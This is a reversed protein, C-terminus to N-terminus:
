GAEKAPFTNIFARNRWALAAVIFSPVTCLMIYVFFGKYGLATQVFGSILRPLMASLAMFGTGIAYHATQREGKAFYLLFLTYATFGFGYGFQEVFFCARILTVNDPQAYALYLFAANPIHMTIILPWYTRRLGLQSVLFGALLGGIVLGVVGWTGYAVGYESTSLALGGAERSAKLFPAAMAGVQVEALRFLLMFAIAAPLGERARAGAIAFGAVLGVIATGIAFRTDVFCLGLATLLIGAVVAFEWGALRMGPKLFFTELSEVYGAVFNTRPKPVDVEPRPLVFFHYTACLLYIVAPIYFVTSWGNIRAFRMWAYAAAGALDGASALRELPVPTPQMVLPALHAIYRGAIYVLLGKGFLSGSRYFTSRVGNYAAQDSEGLGLMYFGDAAIDHTASVFAMLWLCAASWFLWSNPLKIATALGLFCGALLLQTLVIWWRKTSFLEVLPSWLPKLVWALYMWGTVVGLQITNLGLDTYLVPTVDSVVANPISEAFYLSPVWLWNWASKM